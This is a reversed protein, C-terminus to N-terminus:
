MREGVLAIEQRRWKTHTYNTLLNRSLIRYVNCAYMKRAENQSM